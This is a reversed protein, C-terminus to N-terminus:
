SDRIPTEKPPRLSEEEQEKVLMTLPIESSPLLTPANVCLHLTPPVDRDWKLGLCFYLFFLSQSVM